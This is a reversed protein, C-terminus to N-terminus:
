KFPCALSYCKLNCQSGCDNSCKLVAKNTGKLIPKILFKM